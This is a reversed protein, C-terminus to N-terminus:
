FAFGVPTIRRARRIGEGPHLVRMLPHEALETREVSQVLEAEAVRNLVFESGGCSL